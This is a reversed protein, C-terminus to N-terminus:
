TSNVNQLLTTPSIRGLLVDKVEKMGALALFLIEDNPLRDTVLLEDQLQNLHLQLKDGFVKNAAKAALLQKKLDETSELSSKAVDETSNRKSTSADSQTNTTNSAPSSRESQALSSSVSSARSSPSSSPIQATSPPRSVGQDRARQKQVASSKVPTTPASVSAKPKPGRNDNTMWGSIGKKQKQMAAELQPALKPVEVPESFSPRPFIKPERIHLALEIISQVDKVDELPSMLMKLCMTHDKSLYKKRQFCLMAAFIYDTLALNKSDAFIADWIKFTNHFSFERAFLVRIWRLGYIQSPIDLSQLKQYLELDFKKLIRDHIRKLQLLIASSAEEGTRSDRFLLSADDSFTNAPKSPESKNQAFWQSATDMVVSFLAFSDHAIYAPDMVTRMVDSLKATEGDDPDARDLYITYYLGALLEHMGQRYGLDPHQRAYCFLIQLLSEQVKELRFFDVDPFTRNIDQQIQKRYEEDQFHKQWPADDDLALPNNKALDEDPRDVAHPDHIYKEVAKSFTDRSSKCAVTWSSIDHPLVGLYVKWAVSRCNGAHLLGALGETQLLEAFEPRNFMKEWMEVKSLNDNSKSNNSDISVYGGSIVRLSPQSAALESSRRDYLQSLLKVENVSLKKASNTIQPALQRLAYSNACGDIRTKFSMFTPTEPVMAPEPEDSVGPPEMTLSVIFTARASEFEWHPCSQSM